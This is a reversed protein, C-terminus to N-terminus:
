MIRPNVFYRESPAGGKPTSRRAAERLYGSAELKGLAGRVREPEWKKSRSVERVTTEVMGPRARLWRLCAQADRQEEDTRMQGFAALAHSTLFDALALADAMTGRSIFGRVTGSQLAHLNGAIRLVTGPLKNAWEIVSHLEGVEPRLRPEHLAQWDDYLSQADPNLVLVFPESIAEAERALNRMREAYADALAEPVPERKTSRTGVMSGPVIWQFRAFLGRGAANRDKGLNELVVGQAMLCVTLTTREVVESTKGARDLVYRDGDYGSLYIGLNAGGSTYRSAMEFFEAGEDHIVALRGRQETLLKVLAEPTADRTYIRPMPPVAQRLHAVKGILDRAEEEAEIQRDVAKANVADKEAKALRQEALRLALQAEEVKPGTTERRESEIENLVKSVRRMVPSKGEGPQLISAMYLNVPEPGRRAPQVTVAGAILASSTGLLTMAALAHPTGTEEAVARAFDGALTGLVELPFDPTAADGPLPLPDDWGGADATGITDLKGRLAELHARQEQGLGLPALGAAERSVEAMKRAVESTERLTRSAKVDQVVKEVTAVKPVIHSAAMSTLDTLSLAGDKGELRAAVQELPPPGDPGRLTLYVEFASRLRPGRFDEPELAALANRYEPAMPMLCWTLLQEEYRDLLKEGRSDKGSGPGPVVNEHQITM